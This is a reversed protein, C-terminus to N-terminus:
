WLRRCCNSQEICQGFIWFFDAADTNYAKLYAEQLWTSGVRSFVYAAGSWNSDNNLSATTGNTIFTQNSSEMYAGVVVRTGSISVNQGFTDEIDANPAKLYAEQVWAGNVRSFVYAPKPWGPGCFPVQPRVLRVFGRIEARFFALVV